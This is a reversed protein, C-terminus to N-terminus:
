NAFPWLGTMLLSLSLKGSFKPCKRERPVYVCRTHTAGSTVNPPYREATPPYREATSTSPVSETRQTSPPHVGSAPSGPETNANAKLQENEAKLQRVQEMLARLDEM